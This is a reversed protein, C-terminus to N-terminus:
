FPFRSFVLFAIFKLRRPPAQSPAPAVSPTWGTATRQDHDTGALAIRM